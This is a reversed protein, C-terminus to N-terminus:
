TSLDFQNEIMKRALEVIRRDTDIEIVTRNEHCRLFGRPVYKGYVLTLKRANIPTGRIRVM